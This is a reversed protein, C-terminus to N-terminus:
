LLKQKAKINTINHKEMVTLIIIIIVCMVNCYTHNYHNCVTVNDYVLLLHTHCNSVTVVNWSLEM